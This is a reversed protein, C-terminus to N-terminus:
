GRHCSCSSRSSRGSPWTSGAPSGRRDPVRRVLASPSSGVRNKTCPLLRMGRGHRSGGREEVEVLQPGV